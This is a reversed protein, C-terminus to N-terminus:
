NFKHKNMRRIVREARSKIGEDLTKQGLEELYTRLAKVDNREKYGEELEYFVRDKNFRHDPYNELLRKAVEIRIELDEAGYRNEHNRLKLELANAAYISNPYKEVLKDYCEDSANLEKLRFKMDGTNLLKLAKLEEGVPDTITVSVTNSVLPEYGSEEWMFTVVYEGPILYPDRKGLRFFTKIINVEKLLVDGPKLRTGFSYKDVPRSFDLRNGESDKIVFHSELRVHLLCPGIMGGNEIKISVCVPQRTYFQEKVTWITIKTNFSKLKQQCFAFPNCLFYISGVAFLRDRLCSNKM